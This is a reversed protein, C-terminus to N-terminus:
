HPPGSFQSQRSKRKCVPITHVTDGAQMHSCGLRSDPGDGSGLQRKLITANQWDKHARLRTVTVKTM